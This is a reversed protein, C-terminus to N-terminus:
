LHGKILYYNKKGKQILIYHNNILDANSFVFSEDIKSKNVQISGEKLMRRAEGKSTMIQTTESLFDICNQTTKILNLDVEVQPVGEFVTLLMEESLNKLTETTGKGFM